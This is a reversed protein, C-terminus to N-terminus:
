DDNGLKYDLKEVQLDSPLFIRFVAGGEKNKEAMIRGSHAKVIEKCISLGLGSGGLVNKSQYFADFILKLENESVGAGQDHVEINILDDSQFCIIKITSKVPSYNIANTILNIM